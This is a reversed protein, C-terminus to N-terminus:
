KSQPSSGAAVLLWRHNQNIWTDVFRWRKPGTAKNSPIKEKFTGVVIATTEMVRVTVNELEFQSADPPASRIKTLYEGKTMAKGDDVVILANDFLVDLARNDRRLVADGWARELSRITTAADTGSDQQGFAPVSIGCVVIMLVRILNSTTPKSM